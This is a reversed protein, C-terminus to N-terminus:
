KQNKHRSLWKLRRSKLLQKRHIEIHESRTTLALNEIRDDTPDENIHHVIDKKILKRRLACEMIGRAYPYTKDNRGVIWWRGNFFSIGGQYNPPRQGKKFSGSNSKCIGKTGKNWPVPMLGKTGKNWSIRGKGSISLKLKSAPTHSHGKFGKRGKNWPTYGKEFGLKHGKTFPM